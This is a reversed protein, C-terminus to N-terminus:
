HAQGSFDAQHAKESQVAFTSKVALPVAALAVSKLCNQASGLCIQFALNQERAIIDDLECNMNHGIELNLVSERVTVDRFEERCLETGSANLVKAFVVTFSGEGIPLKAQSVRSQFKFVPPTKAVGISGIEFDCPYNAPSVCSVGQARAAGPLVLGAVVTMSILWLRIKM